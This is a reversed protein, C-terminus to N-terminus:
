KRYKKLGETKTGAMYSDYERETRARKMNRAHTKKEDLHRKCTAHCGVHRDTTCDRCAKFDSM